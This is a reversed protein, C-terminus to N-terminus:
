LDKLGFAVYRCKFGKEMKESVALVIYQKGDIEYTAPTAYGSGPLTYEWVIKGTKQDFARFKDDYTSAIFLLGSKTVIPGGENRTGTPAIGRKTLEEYEGLVSQWVIEGKNMDIATLTGWPPKIAPYGEKDNFRTYGQNTYRIKYFQDEYEEKEEIKSQTNETKQSVSPKMKMIFGVVAQRQEDSLQKMAPMIGKGNKVFNNVDNYSYKKEVKKLDPVYHGGEQNEGHCSACNNQYINAGNLSNEAAAKKLDILKLLWPMDNSNIFLLGNNQNFAAGGWSAGGNFFPMIISGETSPPTFPKTSYKKFESKIHANSEPSINTIDEEKFEQRAFPAPKVPIPQTAWATEGEINSTPVPVEKIDFLPKGTERDFLYVYGTKTAQAVADINKGNHNVTILNPQCPLDRDWLDHHIIQYHWIKKGTKANLALLCNGYLNQGKRNAGYFDYTPSALPIYVIGRKEDLSMGAWNNAGGLYKYADPSWTEYGEEGPHPITHFSWEVKGSLVNIARIDGPAAPLYESVFSGTILLNEHIIGPSTQSVVKDQNFSLGKSYLIRGNEGFTKILKGNNANVAYLYRSFVFFIRKDNGKAWYTLGRAPGQGGKPDILRPKFVWKEKGTKADLAVVDKASTTGYLIGNIILPNCKVKDGNNVLEMEYTWALELNQVNDVNIQDLDSYHSSNADGGYRTWENKSKPKDDGFLFSFM